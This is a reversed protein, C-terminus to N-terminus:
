QPYNVPVVPYSTAARGTGTGGPSGLCPQGGPTLLVLLSAARNAKSLYCKPEQLRFCFNDLFTQIYSVGRRTLLSGLHLTLGRSAMSPRLCCLGTFLRQQGFGGAACAQQMAKRM